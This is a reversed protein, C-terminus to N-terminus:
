KLKLVANKVGVHMKITKELGTLMCKNQHFKKQYLIVHLNIPQGINDAEIKEM